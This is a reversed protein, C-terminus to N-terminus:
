SFNRASLTLSLLLSLSLSLFRLRSLSSLSSKLLFNLLFNLNLLLFLFLSFSSFHFMISAIVSIYLYCKIKTSTAIEFCRTKITTNMENLFHTKLMSQVWCIVFSEFTKVNKVEISLFCNTFLMSFLRATVFVFMIRNCYLICRSDRNITIWLTQYTDFQLKLRMEKLINFYISTVSLM